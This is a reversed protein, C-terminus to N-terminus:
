EVSNCNFPIDEAEVLQKLAKARIGVVKIKKGGKTKSAIKGGGAIEALAEETLVLEDTTEENNEDHENAM